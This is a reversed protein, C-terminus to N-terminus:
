LEGREGDVVDQTDAWAELEECMGVGNNVLRSVVVLAEETSWKLAEVTHDLPPDRWEVPHHWVVVADGVHLDVVPPVVVDVVHVGIQVEVASHEAGEEDVRRAKSKVPSAQAGYGEKPLPLLPGQQPLQDHAHHHVVTGRQGEEDPVRDETNSIPDVRMHLGTHQKAGDGVEPVSKHLLRIWAVLIHVGDGDKLPMVVDPILVVVHHVVVRRVTVPRISWRM